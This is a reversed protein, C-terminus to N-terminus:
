EIFYDSFFNLIKLIIYIDLGFFGFTGMLSDVSLM